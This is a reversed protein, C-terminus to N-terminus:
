NGAPSTVTKLLGATVTLADNLKKVHTDADTVSVYGARDNTILDTIPTTVDVADITEGDLLPTTDATVSTKVVSTM